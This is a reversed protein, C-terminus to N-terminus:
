DGSWFRLSRGANLLGDRDSWLGALALRTGPALERDSFTEPLQQVIVEGAVVGEADSLCVTIGGASSREAWLVVGRVAVVDTTWEPDIAAWFAECRAAFVCHRCTAPSPSAPPSGGLYQIYDDRLRLAEDAVRESAAQDVTWEVPSGGFRLILARDPWRGTREQELVCYLALQDQLHGALQGAEDLVEGTKYDVVAHLSPSLVTLDLIGNLRGARGEVRRECRLEVREGAESVVAVARAAVNRLRAAAPRARRVPGGEALGALAALFDASLHALRAEFPPGPRILAALTAHAADGILQADSKPGAAPASQAFAVRLFCERLARLRSPSVSPLDRAPPASM